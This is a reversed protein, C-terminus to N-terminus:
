ERTFTKTIGVSSSSTIARSTSASLFYNILLNQELVFDKKNKFHCLIILELFGQPLLFSILCLIHYLKLFLVCVNLLTLISFVSATM